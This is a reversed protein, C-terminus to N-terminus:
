LIFRVMAIRELGIGFAWGMKDQNSNSSLITQQMVGVDYM